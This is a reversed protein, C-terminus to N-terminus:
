HFVGRRRGWAHMVAVRSLGNMDHCNENKAATRVLVRERGPEGGALLRGVDDARGYDHCRPLYSPGSMASRDAGVPEQVKGRAFV